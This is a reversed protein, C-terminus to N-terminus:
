LGTLGRHTRLLGFVIAVWSLAVGLPAVGQFGLALLLGAGLILGGWLIDRRASPDKEDGKGAFTNDTFPSYKAEVQEALALAHEPALGKQVLVSAVYQRSRGSSCLAIALEHLQQTLPSNEPEKVKM